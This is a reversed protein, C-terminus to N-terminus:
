VSPPFYRISLRGTLAFIVKKFLCYKGAGPLITSRKKQGTEANSQEGKYVFQILKASQFSVSFQM